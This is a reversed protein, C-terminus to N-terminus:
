LRRAMCTIEVLSGGYLKSSETTTRAPCAGSRFFEQYISDMKEFDDFNALHVDTRVIRDLDLGIEQLMSQIATLIARTEKKIDGLVERGEPFDAAVLGSLYAYNDDTVIQSYGYGADLQPIAKPQIHDIMMRGGM